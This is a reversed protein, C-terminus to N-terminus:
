YNAIVCIVARKRGRRSATRIIRYAADYSRFLSLWKDPSMITLHSHNDDYCAIVHYNTPAANHLKGIVEKIRNPPFHELVDGSCVLDASPIPATVVNGEMISVNSPMGQTLPSIAWDLGIVKDVHPALTRLFHGNGCGIEVVTRPKSDLIRDLEPVLWNNTQYAKSNMHLRQYYVASVRAPDRLRKVLHMKSKIKKLVGM